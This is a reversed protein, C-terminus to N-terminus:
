DMKESLNLVMLKMETMEEIAYSPGERGTGSGKAGGYPMHDMRFTSIDNIILGGVDAEEFANMINTMNDTFLGMQLGFESNNAVALAEELDNYPSVTVVPAFMETANVRMEPTTDVLITPEFITGSQKGGTVVHAGANVAEQVKEFADEAARESIMPGVDTGPDRPDGTKLNKVKAILSNLFENYVTRQVLVRQVSICVQGANSFGGTAIRGSAYELNADSHVITAANGGLELAVRKRGAIEKLHWGVAPSGTFSLFAIRSDRVPIEAHNPLCPLVSVAEPPMGAELMIEGLILASVPTKSAPKIIVPNGAAIAPGIKHSILNFPFNFPTICLVPGLPFRRVFGTRGTGTETWDLPIIGGNIRKAEEASIELTGTTREVEAKALTITKGCEDVITEAIETARERIIDVMKKLICVREYTPVTKTTKFGSVSARIADEIDEKGALYVRYVIENNYPSKVDLIEDSKRWDGGVLFARPDCMNIQLGAGPKIVKSARLNKAAFTM